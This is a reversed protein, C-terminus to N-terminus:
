LRLGCPVNRLATLFYAENSSWMKKAAYFTFSNRYCVMSVCLNILVDLNGFKRYVIPECIVALRVRRGGKLGGGGLFM